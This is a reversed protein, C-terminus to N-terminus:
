APKSQYLLCYMQSLIIQVYNLVHKKSQREGKDFINYLYNKLPLGTREEFKEGKENIYVSWNGYKKTSTDWKIGPSYDPLGDGNIDELSAKNLLDDTLSLTPYPVFM